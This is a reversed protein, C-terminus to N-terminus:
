EGDDDDTLSDDSFEDDSLETEDFIIDEEPFDSVSEDLDGFEAREEDTPQYEDDGFDIKTIDLEDAVSEDDNQEDLPTEPPLEEGLLKVKLNQLDVAGTGAPILHGTIVNEKFGRLVDERGLTAADTLIRTTDQFSAASIFSDTELSAKTIGLLVPEAEAPRGGAAAIRKNERDFEYRDVLEGALFRTDGQGSSGDECKDVIRVKQMMQRIIIEIHKDNIEVGQSRYVTQVENVLYRQLEQAGCISLLSQPIVAGTTLKQGKKVYEGNSVILHKNNPIQHESTDDTDPNKVYLVRGKKGKYKTIEVYGDIQAIEAIDKPTRAEFLEAVRPLGGTIDKNKQQQHPIRALTTGPSVRQGKKVMLLTGAALPYEGIDELTQANKIVIRPNLDDNHELVTLQETSGRRQDRKYTVGDILDPIDVIGGEEAIIPMNSPDWVALQQGSEITDGDRCFLTAGIEVPYRDVPTEKMADSWYDYDPNYFTGIIAAEQKARERANQEAEKVLNEDFVVIFGNKNIVLMEGKENEVTRINEFYIKGSNRSKIDSQKSTASAVGGIHFTRMTLQTGPEGISQAAIIGLADGVEADRDTALNKGYCKVCVGHEVDCTLVSRILVRQLGRAEVRKAIEPTFEEGAAIILEGSNATDRIDQASYRGVLRDALSLLPKDDDGKIASVYIGKMTGCDECRCIIDQAVDVLKRTMYGSDATKLATDALGKRAGHTSIFYELVSLGERFNSLIPREIIEGNPKAMLGRMGALQRIQDKSGRAGSDLMAYVPNIRVKNEAECDAFLDKAVDNTVKTWIEVIRDHKEGETRAGQDFEDQIKEIEKRAESILSAKTKPVPVDAVSISFGAVTAYEYGLNKLKDLL